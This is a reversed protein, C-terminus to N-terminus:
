GARHLIRALQFEREAILMGPGAPLLGTREFSLRELVGPGDLWELLGRIERSSTIARAWMEASDHSRLLHLALLDRLSDADEGAPPEATELVRKIAVGARSEIEHWRREVPHSLDPQVFTDVRGLGAPGCRRVYGNDIRHSVLLGDADAWRRLLLRSVVHQDSIPM